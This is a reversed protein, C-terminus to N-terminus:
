FLGLALFKVSYLCFGLFVRSEKTLLSPLTCGSLFQQCHIGEELSVAPFFGHWARVKHFIDLSGGQAPSFPTCEQGEDGLASTTNTSAVYTAQIGVGDQLSSAANEIGEVGQMNLPPWGHFKFKWRCSTTSFSPTQVKVEEWYYLPLSNTAEAVM